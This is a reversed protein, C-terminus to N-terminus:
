HQVLLPTTLHQPLRKVSLGQSKTSVFYYSKTDFLAAYFTDQFLDRTSFLGVKVSEWKVFLNGKPFLHRKSLSM